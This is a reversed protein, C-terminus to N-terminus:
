CWYTVEWNCQHSWTARLHRRLFFFLFIIKSLNWEKGCERRIKVIIFIFYVVIYRGTSYVSHYKVTVILLWTFTYCRSNCSCVMSWLFKYYWDNKILVTQNFCFNWVLSALNYQTILSNLNNVQNHDTSVVMM